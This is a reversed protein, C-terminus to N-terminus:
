MEPRRVQKEGEEWFFFDWCNEEVKKLIDLVQDIIVKDKNTSGYLDFERALHRVITHSETILEDDIELTPVQGLPFLFDLILIKYGADLTFKLVLLFRIM